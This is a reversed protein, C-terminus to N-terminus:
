EQNSARTLRDQDIRRDRDDRATTSRDRDVGNEIAVAMFIMDSTVPEELVCPHMDVLSVERADSTEVPQHRDVTELARETLAKFSDADFLEM